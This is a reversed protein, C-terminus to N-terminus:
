AFNISITNSSVDGYGMDDALIIVINPTPHAKQQAIVAVTFLQSVTLLAIFRKIM